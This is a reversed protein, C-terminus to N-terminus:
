CRVKTVRLISLISLYRDKWSKAISCAWFLWGKRASGGRISWWRFAGGGGLPLVSNSLTWSTVSFSNHSMLQASWFGLPPPDLNKSLTFSYGVVRNRFASKTCTAASMLFALSVTSFQIASLPEPTVSTKKLISMLGFVIYSYQM